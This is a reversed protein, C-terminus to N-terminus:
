APGKYHRCKDFFLNMDVSNKEVIIEIAKKAEIKTIASEYIWDELFGPSSGSGRCARKLAHVRDWQSGEIKLAKVIHPQSDIAHQKLLCYENRHCKNCKMYKGGILIIVYNNANILVMSLFLARIVELERGCLM